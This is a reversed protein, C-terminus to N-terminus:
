LRLGRDMVVSDPVAAEIREPGSAMVFDALGNKNLQYTVHRISLGFEITRSAATVV